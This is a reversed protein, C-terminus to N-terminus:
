QYVFRLIKIKCHCLIVQMYDVILKYPNVVLFHDLISRKYM